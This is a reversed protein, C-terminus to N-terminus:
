DGCGMLAPCETCIDDCCDGNSFCTEDCYCQGDSGVDYCAGACSGGVPGDEEIFYVIDGNYAFDFAWLEGYASNGAQVELQQYALEIPQTPDFPDATSRPYEIATESMVMYM